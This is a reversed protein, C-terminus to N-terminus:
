VSGKGFIIRSLEQVIKQMGEAEDTLMMSNRSTQDSTAATSQVAKDIEVIAKNIASIGISQEKSAKLIEASSINVKQAENLINKFVDAVHSVITSGRAVKESSEKSVKDVIQVSKNVITSIESAAKGSLAALNGVEQAVVAFGRGAEGAREAEVSANFSLLKTQFVIEDIVATRNAIEGIVKALDQVTMNSATIAEMSKTLEDVTLSGKQCVDCVGVSIQNSLEASGENQKVMGTLQEIAESMQQIQASQSSSQNSLHESSSSLDSSNQLVNNASRELTESIKIVPRVLMAGLYNGFFAVCIVVAVGFMVSWRILERSSAFAMSTPIESIVAWRIGPFVEISQYATLVDIGAYNKAVTADSKGSLAQNIETSEIRINNKISNSATLNANGAIDSRLFMDSGVLYGRSAGDNGAGQGMIENLQDSSIKIVLAGVVEGKRSRIPIGGLAHPLNDGDPYLAFDSFTYNGTKIVQSFLNSLATGKVLAGNISEGIEKMKTTTFIVYGTDKSILMLDEYGFREVYKRLIGSNTQWLKQFEDSDIDLRTANKPQNEELYDNFVYFSALSDESSAILELNDKMRTFFSSLQFKKSQACDLLAEFSRQKLALEGKYLSFGGMIAMPLTGALIFFVIIKSRLGKLSM